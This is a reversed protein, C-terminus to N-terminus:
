FQLTRQHWSWRIAYFPDFLPEQIFLLAFTNELCPKVNYDIFAQFQWLQALCKFHPCLQLFSNLISDIFLLLCFPDFLYLGYCFIHILSISHQKDEKLLALLFSHSKIVCDLYALWDYINILRGHFIDLITFLYDAFEDVVLWELFM